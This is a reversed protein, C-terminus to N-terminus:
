CNELCPHSVTNLQEVKKNAWECHREVCKQAHGEMDYSWAMTQAHPKQWGPLKETAGAFIRSEFKKTYQETITENSKCQMCTGCAKLRSWFLHWVKRLNVFITSVNPFCHGPFDLNRLPSRSLCYPQIGGDCSSQKKNARECYREVWTKAHGEMDYSLVITKAHLKEWGPLKETAAASIRSEFMKQIWWFFNRQTQMWTSHMGFIRPWSIINTWWYDVHEDIEELHSGYEAQKWGNQHWGRVGTVSIIRTTESSCVSMGPETSEECELSWCFSGRVTKGMAIRGQLHIDSYLTRELLVVPDEMRSWLNRGYQATSSTDM